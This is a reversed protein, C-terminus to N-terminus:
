EEPTNSGKRKNKLGNGALVGGLSGTLFIMLTQLISIFERDNPAQKMPQTVFIVAWCIGVVMIVLCLALTGAILFMLRAYIDEASLRREHTTALRKMLYNKPVSETPKALAEEYASPRKGIPRTKARTGTAGTM